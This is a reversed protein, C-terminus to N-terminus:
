LNDHKSLLALDSRRWIMVKDPKIQRGPILIRHTHTHPYVFTFFLNHTRNPPFDSSPTLVSTKLVEQSSPMACVCPFCSILGHFIQRTYNSNLYHHSGGTAAGQLIKYSTIFFFVPHFCPLRFMWRALLDARLDTQAVGVWSRRLFGSLFPHHSSVRCTNILHQLSSFLM